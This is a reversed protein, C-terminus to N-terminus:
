SSVTHPGERVGIDRLDIMKEGVTFVRNEASFRVEDIFTNSANVELNKEGIIKNEADLVSHVIEGSASHYRNNEFTEIFGEPTRFTIKGAASFVNNEYHCHWKGALQDILMDRESTFINNRVLHNGGMHKHLPFGCDVAVNDEVCWGDSLEDLYYAIRLHHGKIPRVGYVLNNRFTGNKSMSTYFSAGDNLVNMVHHVYNKEVIIGNGNALIGSYSTHHVENHCVDLNSTSIGLASGHYIGIDHVLLDCVESGDREKVGFYVAGAGLGHFHSREIKINSSYKGYGCNRIAYGGTATAIIDHIYLHDIANFNIAGVMNGAGFSASGCTSATAMLTFGEIEIDNVKEDAYLVSEHIPLYAETYIDEGAMPKYYLKGIKTDHYFTGEKKLVEPINWLCYNRRGFSGVPFWCPEDFILTNEDVGRVQVMSDSWSHIVTAEASHLTLGDLAGKEVHMKTMEDYTPKREWGGKTTGLWAVDFITEHRLYGEEPYRCRTRLAGNVVLDRLPKGKPVDCVLFGDEERWTIKTGGVLTAGYGVIHVPKTIRFHANEYIGPTFEITGGMDIASQIEETTHRNTVKM